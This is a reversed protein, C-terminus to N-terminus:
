RKAYTGLRVPHGSIANQIMTAFEEQIQDQLEELGVIRFTFMPKAGGTLISVRAKVLRTRFGVYPILDAVFMALMTEATGSAKVQEFASMTSGLAEQASQIKRMTEITVSRVAAIAKPNPIVTGDEALCTLMFSFDELFEAAQQQNLTSGNSVAHLARYQGTMKASFTAIDDAHGAAGSSTRMNLIATAEMHDSVFVEAGNLVAHTDVYAAFSPLSSTKMAGRSRIRGPLHDEVTVLMFGEPVAAIGDTEASIERLRDNLLRLEDATKLESLTDADIM